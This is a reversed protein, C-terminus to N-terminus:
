LRNSLLAKCLPFACELAMAQSGYEQVHVSPIFNGGSGSNPNTPFGSVFMRYM